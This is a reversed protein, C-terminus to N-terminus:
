LNWKPVWGIVALILGVIPLVPMLLWFVLVIGSFLIQILMASLGILMMVIRVVSGVTRSIMRDFFARMKDEISGDVKEASIQRFPAFLTKLLLGISFFDASVDLRDKFMQIRSIWGAGYWWKFIGV